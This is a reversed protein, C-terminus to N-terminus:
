LPGNEMGCDRVLAQFTPDERLSRLVPLAPAYMAWAANQATAVRFWGVARKTQGLAAAVLMAAEAYSPTTAARAEFAHLQQQARDHEGICALISGLAGQFFPVNPLLEVARKGYDYARPDRFHIALNLGLFCHTVAESPNITLTRELQVQAEEYAGGMHLLQGLQGNVVPSTPARSVAMHAIQIAEDLRGQTSLFDAYWQLAIASSEDLEIAKLFSSEASAFRLQSLHIFGRTSYATALGDNLALARDVYTMAKQTATGADAGDYFVSLIECDAMGVLAPACAPDQNLAHLFSQRAEALGSPSRVSVLRQGNTLAMFGSSQRYQTWTQRGSYGSTALMLERRLTDCLRQEIAFANSIDGQESAAWCIKADAPTVCRLSLVLDRKIVRVSSQLVLTCGAPVDADGDRASVELGSESGLANLLTDRWCAGLKVTTAGDSLLAPPMVSILMRGRAQGVICALASPRAIQEYAVALAYGVGPVTQIPDQGDFYKALHRRTEVVLMSLAKDSVDRDPWLEQLLVERRVPQNGAHGLRVLLEVGKRGIGLYVMDHLIAHKGEDVLLPGLRAKM